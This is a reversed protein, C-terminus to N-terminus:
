ELYGLNRLQDRAVAERDESSERTQPVPVESDPLTIPESDATLLETQVEGDFTSLIPEGLAHLLTPVVDVISMGDVDSEEFLPGEAAILGRYRHDYHAHGPKPIVPDGTPSFARLPLYGSAPRAILDPLRHDPDPDAYVEEPTHVSTFVQNGDEDTLSTLQDRLERRLADVDDVTPHDFRDDNIYLCGYRLQWARSAAFDVDPNFDVVDELPDGGTTNAVRIYATRLVDFLADYRKAVQKAAGTVLQQVPSQGDAKALYDERELWTQLHVAKPKREFGHDSLLLINEANTRDALDAAYEDCLGIISQYWRTRSEENPAFQLFHGVWDPTSFLVFGMRPDERDFAEVAFAHRARTVSRLHEIYSEPNSKLSEDDHVVYDDFARLSQLRVPVADSPDASLISSVLKTEGAPEREVSAPLNVFVADDLLDYVAPDTTNCSVSSISYDSSQQLMTSIGHSGPDLGTAFSTWAPLTTPTDVSRLDGSVGASRVHDFFPTEVDFESLMNDSLGDLGVVLLEM